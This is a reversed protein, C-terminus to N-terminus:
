MLNAAAGREHRNENPEMSGTGRARERENGNGHKRTKQNKVYVCTRKQTEILLQVNSRLQPPSSDSDSERLGVSRSGEGGRSISLNIQHTFCLHVLRKLEIEVVAM